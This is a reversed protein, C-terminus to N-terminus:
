DFLMYISVFREYLLYDCYINKNMGIPYTGNTTNRVCVCVSKRPINKSTYLSYLLSFVIFCHKEGIEREDNRTRRIRHVHPRFPMFCHIEGIEREREKEKKREREENRRRRIYRIPRRFLIFCYMEGIERERERERRTYFASDKSVITM